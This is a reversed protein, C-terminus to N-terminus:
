TRSRNHLSKSFIIFKSKNVNLSLKNSKLWDSIQILDMNAKDFLTGISSESLFLSSDDAFMLPKSYKTSLHLDNIYILFLLPGLISGQPIGTQPSLPDSPVNSYNVYQIRNQLYNKFWKLPIGHIGYYGLKELLIDSELMDFAKSFDLFIGLMYKNDNFATTIQCNLTILALNTSHKKRFGFQYPYLIKNNDLFSSLRNHM